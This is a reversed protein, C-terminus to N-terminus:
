KSSSAQAAMAAGKCAPEACDARFVNTNLTQSCINLWLDSQAGGGTASITAPMNTGCLSNMLIRLSDTVSPMIARAFHGHTHSKRVHEFGGLESHQNAYPKAKLGDCDAPIAGALEVLQSIKLEPCFKRHYWELV